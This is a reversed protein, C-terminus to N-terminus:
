TMIGADAPARGREQSAKKELLDEMDLPNM